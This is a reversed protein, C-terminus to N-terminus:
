PEALTRVSVYRDLDSIRVGWEASFLHALDLTYETGPAFGDSSVDMMRIGTESVAPAELYAPIVTSDSVFQFEADQSYDVDEDYELIFPPYPANHAFEVVDCPTNPGGSRTCVRSFSLTRPDPARFADGALTYTFEPAPREPHMWLASSTGNVGAPSFAILIQAGGSYILDESPITITFTGAAADYTSTSHLGFGSTQLYVGPEIDLNGDHWGEFTVNVVLDQDIPVVSGAPPDVSAIVPHPAIPQRPDADGMTGDCIVLAGDELVCLTAAYWTSETAYAFSHLVGSSLFAARGEEPHPLVPALRTASKCGVYLEPVLAVDVERNSVPERQRLGYFGCVGRYIDGTSQAVDMRETPSYFSGMGASVLAARTVFAEAFLVRRDIVPGSLLFGLPHRELDFQGDYALREEPGPYYPGRQRRWVGDAGVTYSVPYRSTAGDYLGVIVPHDTDDYSLRLRAGVGGLLTEDNGPVVWAVEFEDEGQELRAIVFQYPDNHRYLVDVSGDPALEVDADEMGTISGELSIGTPTTVLRTTPEEGERWRIYHIPGDGRERVIVHVTGDSAAVGDIMQVSTLPLDSIAVRAWPQDLGAYALDLGERDAPPFVVGVRQGPMSILAVQPSRVNEMPMGSLRQYLIGRDADIGELRAMYPLRASPWRARAALYSPDATNDGHGGSSSCGVLQAVVLAAIIRLTM